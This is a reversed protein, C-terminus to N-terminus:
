QRARDRVPWDCGQPRRRPPARAQPAVADNPRLRIAADLDAMAGDLDKKGSRVLARGLLAAADDPNKALAEEYEALREGADKDKRDECALRPTAPFVLGGAYSFYVKDQSRAVLVRHARLFDTGLIVEFPANRTYTLEPMFDEIYLRPDRILEDGIAVSDLPAVWAHVTGEGIGGSCGSPAAGPSQPTVGVKEAFPLSIVSFSA